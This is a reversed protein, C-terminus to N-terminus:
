IFISVYKSHVCSILVNPFQEREVDYYIDIILDLIM